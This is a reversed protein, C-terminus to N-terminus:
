AFRVDLWGAAAKTVETTLAGAKIAPIALALAKEAVQIDAPTCAYNKLSAAIEAPVRMARKYRWGLEMGSRYAEVEYHTRAATSTVYAWEFALGGAQKDQMVHIHEHTCIVIQSWADWGPAEVGIPHPVYIKSGVTTTYQSLFAQKDLIGLLSLFEAVFKMEAANNKDVVTTRYKQQMFQWFDKADAATPKIPPVLHKVLPIRSLFARM